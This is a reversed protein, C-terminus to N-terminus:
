SCRCVYDHLRQDRCCLETRGGHCVADSREVHLCWPAAGTRVINHAAASRLKNSTVHENKYTRIVDDVQLALFITRASGSARRPGPSSVSFSSMDVVSMDRV